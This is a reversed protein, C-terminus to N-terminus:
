DFCARSIIAAAYTRVVARAMLDLGVDILHFASPPEEV